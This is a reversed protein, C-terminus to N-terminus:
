ILARVLDVGHVHRMLIRKGLPEGEKKMRATNTSPIFKGTAHGVNLILSIAERM